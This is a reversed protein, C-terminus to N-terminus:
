HITGQGQIQGIGTIAGTPSTTPPPPSGSYCAAANFHLFPAGTSDTGGMVAEYCIKAPINYAFGYSQALGGTVDPGIPPWHAAGWWSPRSVLYFSPPLVTNSPCDGAEIGASTGASAVPELSHYYNRCHYVTDQALTTDFCFPPNPSVPNCITGSGFGYNEDVLWSYSRNAVVVTPCTTGGAGCTLNDPICHSSQIACAKRREPYGIASSVAMLDQSGTINGVYNFQSSYQWLANPWPGQYAYWGNTNAQANSNPVFPICSTITNPVMSAGAGTGGMALGTSGQGTDQVTSVGDCPLGLLGDAALPTIQTGVNGTGTCGALTCRFVLCRDPAVNPAPTVGTPCNGPGAPCVLNLVNPVNPMTITNYTSPSLTAPGNTITAVQSPASQAGGVVLEVTYSYTTSGPPTSTINTPSFPIRTPLGNTLGTASVPQCVKTTGTAWNRFKTGLSNGGHIGDDTMGGVINGEQLNFWPFADHSLLSVAAATLSNGGWNGLAYNYAIVNGSGGNDTFVAEPTREFINNAILFGSTGSDIDVVSDTGSGHYWATTFFNQELQGHYSFETKIIFGMTRNIEIGRVWCYQCNIIHVLSQFNGYQFNNIGYIQLNELASNQNPIWYMLRPSSDNGQGHDDWKCAVEGAALGSVTEIVATGNTPWLPPSSGTLCYGNQAKQTAQAEVYVHHTGTQSSPNIAMGQNFGRIPDRPSNPTWDPLPHRFSDVLPDALTINGTGTDVNTVLNMQGAARQTYSKTGAGADMNFGSSGGPNSMEIDSATNICHSTTPTDPGACAPFWDNLAAIWVLYGSQLATAQGISTVTIITDGKSNYSTIGMVRSYQQSLGVNGLTFAYNNALAASGVATQIITQDAGMGRLVVGTPIIIGNAVTPAVKFTGAALQLFTGASCGNLTAQITATDDGGSPTLISGCQATINPIGGPIGATSWDIARSADLIGAWPTFPTRTQTQRQQRRRQRERREERREDRREERREQPRQQAASRTALLLLVVACFTNSFRM